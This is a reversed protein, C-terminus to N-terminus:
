ISIVGITSSPFYNFRFDKCFLHPAVVAVNRKRQFIDNFFILSSKAIIVSDLTALTWKGSDHV